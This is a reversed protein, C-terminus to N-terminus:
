TSWFYSEPALDAAFKCHCDLMGIRLHELFSFARRLEVWFRMPSICGEIELQLAPCLSLIRLEVVLHDPKPWSPPASACCLRNSPATQNGDSNESCSYIKVSGKLCRVTLNTEARSTAGWGWGGSRAQCSAVFRNLLESPDGPRNERGM